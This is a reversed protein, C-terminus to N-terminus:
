WLHGFYTYLNHLKNSSFIHLKKADIIKNLWVILSMKFINKHGDYLIVSKWKDRSKIDVYYWWHSLSAGCVATKLFSQIVSQSNVGYFALFEYCNNWTAPINRCKHKGTKAQLFTTSRKKLWFCNNRTEQM